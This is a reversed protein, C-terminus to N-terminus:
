SNGAIGLEKRIAEKVAFICRALEMGAKEGYSTSDKRVSAFIDNVCLRLTDCAIKIERGCVIDVLLRTEDFETTTAKWKQVAKLRAEAFEDGALGEATRVSVLADDVAALRKTLDVLMERKLEWTRQREWVEHSIRAEISRTATTVVEVEHRVKEIDEQTAVREGKKKFYGSFYAGFGSAVLTTLALTLLDQWDM